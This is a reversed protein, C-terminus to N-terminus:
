MILESLDRWSPNNSEILEDKASRSKKKLQKERAIAEEIQHFTEFYVLKCCHYRSTFSNPYICKIHEELRTILDATVGIYITTNYDNSLIYVYGGREM